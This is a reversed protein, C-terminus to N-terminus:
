IAEYDGCGQCVQVGVPKAISCKGHLECAFVKIRTSGCCTPCIREELYEGLHLCFRNARKEAVGCRRHLMEADSYKSCREHGCLSCIFRNGESCAGVFAYVCDM